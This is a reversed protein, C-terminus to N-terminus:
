TIDDEILGNKHAELIEKQNEKYFVPDRLQSRKFKAPGSPQNASNTPNGVKPQGPKGFLYAKDAQLATIVEDVGEITGDDKITLKDRDALKLAAELDHTGAAVLKNTLAQNIQSTKIQERLTENESDKQQALEEFKKEDKLKQETSKAQEDKLKKLEAASSVLEAVRPVKWFDKNELVKSLQDASLTSLDPENGTPAPPTPNSGGEGPKPDGGGGDGSGSQGPADSM